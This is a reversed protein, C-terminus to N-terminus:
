LLEAQQGSVGQIIEIVRLIRHETKIVENDLSYAVESRVTARIADGPLISIEHSRFKHLWNMDDITAEIRRKDHRFEWKSQGLYDPKKVKLIMESTQTVSEKVLIKELADESISFDQNLETENEGDTYRVREKDSLNSMASGYAQMSAAFASAPIPSAAIPAVESHEIEAQVMAQFELIEDRSSVTEREKLFRFLFTPIKTALRLIRGRIEPEINEQTIDAKLWTFLSGEHVGEVLLSYRADPHVSNTVQRGVDEILQVLSTVARFLRVAEIEGPSFDIVLAARGEEYPGDGLLTEPAM